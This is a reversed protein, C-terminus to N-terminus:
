YSWKRPDGLSHDINGKEWCFKRQERFELVNKTGTNRPKNEKQKRTGLLKKKGHERTGQFGQPFRMEWQRQQM